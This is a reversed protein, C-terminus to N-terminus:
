QGDSLLKIKGSYLERFKSSRQEPLKHHAQYYEAENKWRERDETFGIYHSPNLVGDPTIVASGKGGTSMKKLIDIVEDFSDLRMAEGNSLSIKYRMPVKVKSM